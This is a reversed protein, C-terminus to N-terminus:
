ISLYHTSMIDRSCDKKIGTLLFYTLLVKAIHSPWTIRTLINNEGKDKLTIAM